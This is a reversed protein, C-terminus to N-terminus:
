VSRLQLYTTPKARYEPVFQTTAKDFWFVGKGEWEGNRQKSCNAVMDPEALADARKSDPLNDDELAEEKPKNRWINLVTDALDTIAGTGKVDMKGPESEDKLKRPHTVLLVHVPYTNKFDCLAEIFQKQSNYDDENIGCKMLSDIIFLNIGYRKHAYEFVELLREAKATGVLNFLWLKDRYWSYIADVKPHTLEGGAAQRSTKFLLNEPKVELSAVCCKWGQELASLETQTVYATKGHGNIGNIITLENERHRLKGNLKSFPTNFGPTSDM